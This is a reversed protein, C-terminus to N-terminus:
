RKTSPDEAKGGKFEVCNMSDLVSPHKQSMERDSTLGASLALVGSRYFNLIM